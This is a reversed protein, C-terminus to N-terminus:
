LLLLGHLCDHPAEKNSWVCIARVRSAYKHMPCIVYSIYVDPFEATLTPSAWLRRVLAHLQKAFQVQGAYPGTPTSGCYIYLMWDPHPWSLVRWEETQPKLPPDTYRHTPPFTLLPSSPLPLSSSLSTFSSSLSLPSPFSTCLFLVMHSLTAPVHFLWYNQPKWFQLIFSDIPLLDLHHFACLLSFPPPQISITTFVSMATSSTLKEYVWDTFLYVTVMCPPNDVHM